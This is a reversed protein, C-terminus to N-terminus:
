VKIRYISSDILARCGFCVERASMHSLLPLKCHACSETVRVPAGRSVREWLTDKLENANRELLCLTQLFSNM